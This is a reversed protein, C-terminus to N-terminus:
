EMPVKACKLNVKVEERSVSKIHLEGLRLGTKKVSDKKLDSLDIEETFIKKLGRLENEAGVVEVSPPDVWVGTVKYGQSPNGVLLAEVLLKKKMLKEFRLTISAPSVMTIRLGRPVPINKPQIGFTAVGPEADSLDIVAKIDRPSLGRLLTAPGTVRINISEVPNKFIILSSPINRFDPSISLATEGSKESMVFYWLIIALVISLLKLSINRTFFGQL